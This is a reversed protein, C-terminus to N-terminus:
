RDYPKYNFDLKVEVIEAINRAVVKPIKIDFDAVTLPFTAILSVGEDHFRMTGQTNIERSVGHIEITGTAEVQQEDRSEPNFGTVEGVFKAKPYKGSELYNENFHEQMLSKEFEFTKIHISFVIRGDETDFVSTSKYSHAEIDELPASSFFSVHNERSLYKQAMGLHAAILFVALLLIRKTHPIIKM